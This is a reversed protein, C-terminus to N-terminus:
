AVSRNGVLSDGLGCVDLFRRSALRYGGGEVLQTPTCGLLGRLARRFTAGNAYDLQRSVSEATRGPEPLWRAAHLMTAWLLLRGPSPLSARCLRSGLHARTWGLKHAFDEASWGLVAADLAEGVVHREWSALRQGILRLTRARTGGETAHALSRALGRGLEEYRLVRLSPLDARGLQLLTLPSVNRRAVLVVGVSPFRRGLERLTAEPEGSDAFGASDVVVTTVPREKVLWLLRGPSRVTAGASVGRAGSVAGALLSDRSLVTVFGM